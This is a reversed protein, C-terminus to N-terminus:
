VNMDIEFHRWYCLFLFVLHKISLSNSSLDSYESFIAVNCLHYCTLCFLVRTSVSNFCVCHHYIYLCLFEHDVQPFMLEFFQSNQQTRVKQLFYSQFNIFNNTKVINPCSKCCFMRTFLSKMAPPGQWTSMMSNAIQLNFVLVACIVQVKPNQHVPPSDATIM